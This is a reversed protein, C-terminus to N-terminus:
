LNESGNKILPSKRIVFPCSCISEIRMLERNTRRDGEHNWEYLQRLASVSMIAVPRKGSGTAGLVDYSGRSIIGLGVGFSGSERSPGMVGPHVMRHHVSMTRTGPIQWGNVSM